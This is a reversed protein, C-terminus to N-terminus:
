NLKTYGSLDPLQFLEDPVDGSISKIVNTAELETEGTHTQTYIAFVDGDRLFFREIVYNGGEESGTIYEYYDYEASDGADDSYFPVVAKGTGRLSRAKINVGQSIANEMNTQANALSSTMDYETYSKADTNISYIMGNIAYSLSSQNKQYADVGRNAETVEAKIGLVYTDYVQIYCNTALLDLYPCKPMDQLGLWAYPHVEAAPATESEATESAAPESEAEESEAAEPADQGAEASEATGADATEPKDTEPTKSGCGALLALVMTLALLMLLLKKM